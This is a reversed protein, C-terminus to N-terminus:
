GKRALLHVDRVRATADPQDPAIPAISDIRAPRPDLTMLNFTEQYWANAPVRQIGKGPHTGPPLAEFRRRFADGGCHSHGEADTYCILITLGPNAGDGGARAGSVVLSAQLIVSSAGAVSEGIVQRIGVENNGAAGMLEVGQRTQRVFDAKTVPRGDSVAQWDMLGRSFDPNGIVDGPLPLSAQPKGGGGPADDGGKGAPLDLQM